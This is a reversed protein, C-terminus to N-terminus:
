GDCVFGAKKHEKKKVCGRSLWAQSIAANHRSCLRQSDPGDQATKLLGFGYLVKLGEEPGWRKEMLGLGAWDM